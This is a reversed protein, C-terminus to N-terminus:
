IHSCINGFAGQPPAFDCWNLVVSPTCCHDLATLGGAVCCATFISMGYGTHRQVFAQPIKEFIQFCNMNNTTMDKRILVFLFFNFGYGDQM